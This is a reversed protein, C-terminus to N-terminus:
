IYLIYTTINEGLLEKMDVFGKQREDQESHELIVIGGEVPCLHYSFTQILMFYMHVVHGLQWIM